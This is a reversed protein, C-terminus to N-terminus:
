RKGLIEKAANRGNGIVPAMGDGGAGHAGTFYLGDIFHEGEPDLTRAVTHDRMTHTYGYVCGLHTGVYHAFTAPTEIVIELIHERLPVGLERSLRDILEGALEHRVRDYDAPAVQMWAEPRPMMTISFSCCGEPTAEPNAANMCISATFREGRLEKMEGYLYDSDMTSASFYCYDQLNLAEKPADLIMIVSFASLSMHRSNVMKLAKVPVESAPEIMSAYVRNPYAGSLVTDSHIEDGRETRVGRVKGDTVLIKEVRQRYEIQVGLAEAREALKLSLEHSTHAPIYAGHGIYENIVVAYVTFPLDSLPAGVYIWYPSLIEKAREPLKFADMVESASYGLTRVFPFHHRLIHLTSKMEEQLTTASESCERCFEFFELVKEKSGPCEEEIESAFREFGPHFTKELGPISLRYADPVPLWDVFVGHDELLKGITRREGPAGIEMMEHLAAEIEVGGRVFSTAIGGPLNHQELVLVSKGAEALLISATLGALAGGIVIVDYQDRYFGTNESLNM